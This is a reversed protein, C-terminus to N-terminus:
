VILDAGRRLSVVAEDLQEHAARLNQTGEDSPDAKAADETLARLDRAVSDLLMAQEHCEDVEPPTRGSARQGALFALAGSSAAIAMYLFIAATNIM